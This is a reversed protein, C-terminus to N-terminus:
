AINRAILVQGNKNVIRYRIKRANDVEYVTEYGEALHGALHEANSWLFHSLGRAQYEERLASVNWWQLTALKDKVDWKNDARWKHWFYVLAAACFIVTAIDVISISVADGAVLEYDYTQFSVDTWTAHETCITVIAPM